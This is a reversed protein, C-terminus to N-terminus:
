IELQELIEIHKKGEKVDTFKKRMYEFTQDFRCNLGSPTLPAERWFDQKSIKKKHLYARIILELFSRPDERHVTKAKKILQHIAKGEKAYNGFPADNLEEFTKRVFHYVNNKSPASPAIKKLIKMPNNMPNIHDGFQSGGGSLNAVGREGSQSGGGSPIALNAVGPDGIQSDRDKPDPPTKEELDLELQRPHSSESRFVPCGNPMYGAQYILEYKVLNTRSRSISRPSAKLFDAFYENTAWCGDDGDLSDIEALLVKDLFSLEEMLWIKAPIWIGKFEREDAM